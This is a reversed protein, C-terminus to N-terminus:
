SASVTWCMPNEGPRERGLKRYAIREQDVRPMELPFRAEFQEGVPAPGLVGSTKVLRVYAEAGAVAM